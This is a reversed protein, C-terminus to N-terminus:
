AAGGEASGARCSTKWRATADRLGHEKVLQSLRPRKMGLLRAAAAINGDVERLANEICDRELEKKMDALSLEGRRVRAYFAQGPDEAPMAPPSETPATRSPAELCPAHVARLSEEGIVGDEAFFAAARFVNELERVNGPWDHAQLARLVEPACRLEPLGSEQAVRVLFRDVLEPIDERRDRLAPTRIEIGRLRYYLDQRFRGEAVLAELDRHTAALIRVDVSLTATGGVREFTREQLVRLLAVQTKPSIDGIEDLFLTGGDATEFRGKRRATAGSFAGREHGFLESLLLTEVLAACNVKVLPRDARPSRRHLAEAVLEKGTGSEGRILVTASSKSVRDIMGLLRGIAASSGAINPYRRRLAQSPGTAARRPPRRLAG